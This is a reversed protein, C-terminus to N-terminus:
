KWIECAEHMLKIVNKQLIAIHYMLHHDYVSVTGNSFCTLIFALQGPTQPGPRGM